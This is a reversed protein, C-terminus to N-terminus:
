VLRKCRAIQQYVERPLTGARKMRISLCAAARDLAEDLLLKRAEEREHPEMRRPTLINGNLDFVYDVGKVYKFGPPRVTRLGRRHSTHHRKSNDTPDNILRGDAINIKIM